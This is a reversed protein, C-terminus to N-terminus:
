AWGGININSGATGIPSLKFYSGIATTYPGVSVSTTYQPIFTGGANISVTGKILVTKFVSAASPTAITTATAVQIFGTYVAGNATDNFSTIGSVPQYYEYAINNITATGGFGLQFNHSSAASKSVAFLAEFQYVTSGSVTVGVGLFSQASTTATGVYATNLRYILEGPVLGSSSIISGGVYLGGSIGVGGGVTLAGTTTSTSVTLGTIALTGVSSPAALSNVADVWVGSASYYIALHGVTSDWWLQGNTPNSPATDSITVNTGSSSSSTGGSAVTNVADVWQSSDADTYYIALNGISSDWWLMGAYPSSPPTDSILTSGILNGGSYISGGIYLNGGIGVGGAVVLAGTITSTSTATSTLTLNTSTVSGGVFLGGFIGAGGVVQLAGTNTSNSSATSLIVFTATTGTSNNSAYLSITATTIIQAGAVYSTNAVYMAGGFGAGGSVILAGTTTSTAQTSTTISLNNVTSPFVYASVADVWQSSDGDNYYIALNGVSSDWWLQGSSPSAPASDSIAVPNLTVGNVLLSTGVNLSGGIYTNGGIGAGGAVVLAGTVTSTSQTSTSIVLNTLTSGADVSLGSVFMPGQVYLAGGIGVGGAVVLAGTTTSISQTATTITLNNVTSPFVYSSVADVWQSSDGDNYYIALNGVSSDWWLNGASPSAPASDGITVSAGGGSSVVTSWSLVGAGNTSLYQGSTGGTITVNSVAGLNTTGSVSLSGISLLGTSPVYTLNAYTKPALVGGANSSVFALYQATASGSDVSFTINQASTASSVTGIITGITATTVTLGGTIFANGNVQLNYSGYSTATNILLYGNSDIEVRLNSNISFTIPAAGANFTSTTIAGNSDQLFSLSSAISM